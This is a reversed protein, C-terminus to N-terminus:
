TPDCAYLGRPDSWGNSDRYTTRMEHDLTDPNMRSYTEIGQREFHILGDPCDTTFGWFQTNTLHRLLAPQGSFEGMDKIANTDNDATGVRGVSKLIRHLDYKRAASAVFRKPEIMAPLGRDDVAYQALILLEEVAAESLRAQTSLTNAYTGADPGALVHSTSLLPQGDGGPYNSDTANNLVNIARLDKTRKLSHAMFRGAQPVMRIHKADDVAEKTIKLGLGVTDHVFRSTEGQGMSDMVIVDGEEKVSAYGTGWVRKHEEQAMSSTRSEFVMTYEVLIQKYRIGVVASITM